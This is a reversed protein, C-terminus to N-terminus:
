GFAVLAGIVAGQGQRILTLRGTVAAVEGNAHLVPFPGPDGEAAAQGSQMARHFGAWHAERYADPVILDLRQGVAAAATHGFASAAGESWFRIVGEEDAIVVACNDLGAERLIEVINRRL